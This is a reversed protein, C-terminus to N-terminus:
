GSESPPFSPPFAAVASRLDDIHLNAKVRYEWQWYQIALM